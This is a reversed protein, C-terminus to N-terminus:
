CSDLLMVLRRLDQGDFQRRVEISRRGECVRVAMGGGADASPGALAVEVMKPRSRQRHAPSELRRRWQYFTPASVGIRAAYNAMSSGSAAQAELAASCWAVLESRAPPRAGLDIRRKGGVDRDWARLGEPALATTPRSRM